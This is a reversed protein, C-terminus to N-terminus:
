SQKEYLLHFNEISSTFGGIGGLSRILKIWRLQAQAHKDGPRLGWGSHKCEVSTFIGLTQGVMDRTVIVPTIGILDSSKLQKNVSASSNALGFRIHRRDVTTVAGVNNRFLRIGKKSAELLIEQQIRAESKIM